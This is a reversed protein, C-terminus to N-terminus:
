SHNKPSIMADNSLINSPNVLDLRKRRTTGESSYVNKQYRGPEFSSKRPM